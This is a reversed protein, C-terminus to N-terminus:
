LTGQKLAARERLIHASVTEDTVAGTKTVILGDTYIKIGVARGCPILSIEAAHYQSAGSIFVLFIFPFFVAFRKKKATNKM